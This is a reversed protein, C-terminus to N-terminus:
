FVIFTFHFDRELFSFWHFLKELSGLMEQLCLVPSSGLFLTNLFFTKITKEEETLRRRHLMNECLINLKPVWCLCISKTYQKKTKVVYSILRKFFWKNIYKNWIRTTQHKSITNYSYKKRNHKLNDLMQVTSIVM